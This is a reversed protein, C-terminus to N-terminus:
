WLFNMNHLKSTLFIALPLWPVMDAATCFSVMQVVTAFGVDEMPLLRCVFNSRFIGDLKRRKDKCGRGCM